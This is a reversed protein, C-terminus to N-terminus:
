TRILKLANLPLLRETFVRQAYFSCYIVEGLVLPSPIRLTNEGDANRSLIM